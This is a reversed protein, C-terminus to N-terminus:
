SAFFVFFHLVFVFYVIFGIGFISEQLFKLFNLKSFTDIKKLNYSIKSAQKKKGCIRTIVRRPGCRLVIMWRGPQREKYSRQKEVDRPFIGLNTIIQEHEFADQFHLHIRYATIVSADCKSFKSRLLLLYIVLSM